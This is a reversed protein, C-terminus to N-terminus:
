KSEKANEVVFDVAKSVVIDEMMQKKAEEGIELVENTESDVAVVSPERIIIGKGKCHVLTNATGLDIGLDHSFRNFLSFM